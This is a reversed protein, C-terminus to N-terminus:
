KFNKCYKEYEDLWNQYQCILCTVNENICDGYHKGMDPASDESLLIEHINEIIAIVIEKNWQANDEKSLYDTLWDIFNKM